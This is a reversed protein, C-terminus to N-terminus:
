RTTDCEPNRIGISVVKKYKLICTHHSVRKVILKEIVVLDSSTYANM